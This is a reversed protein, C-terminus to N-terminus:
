FKTFLEYLFLVSFASSSIIVFSIVGVTNLRGIGGWDMWSWTFMYLGIMGMIFGLFLGFM